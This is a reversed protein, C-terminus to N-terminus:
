NIQNANINKQTLGLTPDDGVIVVEVRRNKERNEASTNPALPQTDAYGQIVVRGKHVDKNELMQQAVTVARSASLDWNSRYNVNAIPIDDTHGSVQIKGKAEIVAATIKDMVASFGPQLDTSGSAFSGKEQIRIVITLDITEVMIQGKQIEEKLLQKIKEAEAAIERLKIELLQKKMEEINAGLTPSQQVTTQRVENAITPETQAPSFDQAIVSTGMPSDPQTIENQVGFAERISGAVQKFKKADQTATSLMLVFFCLLLTCLDAFTALWAASKRPPCKPCKDPM